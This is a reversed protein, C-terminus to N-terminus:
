NIHLFSKCARCTYRAGRLIKNHANKTMWHSNDECDCFYEIKNKNNVKIKLNHTVSDNSDLMWMVLKWQEGHPKLRKLKRGYKDRLVGFQGDKFLFNAIIHGLEHYLTDTLQEETNESFNTIEYNLKILNEKSYAKGAVKGKLKFSITPLVFSSVDYNHLKFRELSEQFKNEMNQQAKLKIEESVM